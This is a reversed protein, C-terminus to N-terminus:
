SGTSIDPPSLKIKRAPSIVPPHPARLWQGSLNQENDEFTAFFRRGNPLITITYNLLIGQM